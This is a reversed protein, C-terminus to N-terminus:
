CGRKGLRSHGFPPLLGPQCRMEWGVRVFSTRAVRTQAFMIHTMRKEKRGRSVLVIGLYLCDM